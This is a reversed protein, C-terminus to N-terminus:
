TKSNNIYNLFSFNHLTQFDNKKKIEKYPMSTMVLCAIEIYAYGGVM